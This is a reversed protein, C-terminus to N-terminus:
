NADQGRQNVGALEALRQISVVGTLEADNTEKAFGTACYALLRQFEPLMQFSRNRFLSTKQLPVRFTSKRTALVLTALPIQNLETAQNTLDGLHFTWPTDTMLITTNFERQFSMVEIALRREQLEDFLNAEQSVNQVSAVFMNTRSVLSSLRQFYFKTRVVANGYSPHGDIEVIQDGFDLNVKEFQLPSLVLGELLDNFPHIAVVVALKASLRSPNM